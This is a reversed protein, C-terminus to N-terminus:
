RAIGAAGRRICAVAAPISAQEALVIIPIAAAYQSLDQDIQPYQCILCAYMSVSEPVPLAAATTVEVGQGRLAAALAEGRQSQEDILLVETM